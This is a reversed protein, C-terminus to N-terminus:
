KDMEIKLGINIPPRRIKKINFIGLTACSDVIKPLGRWNKINFVGLIVCSDVIKPPGRM